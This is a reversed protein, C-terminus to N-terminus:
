VNVEEKCPLPCFTPFDSTGWIIMPIDLKTKGCVDLCHDNIYVYHPCNSCHIVEQTITEQQITTQELPMTEYTAIRNSM